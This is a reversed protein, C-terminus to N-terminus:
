TATIPDKLLPINSDQFIPFVPSLACGQDEKYYEMIGAKWDEM